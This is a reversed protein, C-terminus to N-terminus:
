GGAGLVNVRTRYRLPFTAGQCGDPAESALTIPMELDIRGDAPIRQRPWIQETHLYAPDCDGDPQRVKARVWRLRVPGDTLNRVRIPLPTTVGPFMNSTDGSVRVPSPEIKARPLLAGRDAGGLAAYGAAAAGMVAAVALLATISRRM